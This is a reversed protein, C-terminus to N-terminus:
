TFLGGLSAVSGYILLLLFAFAFISSIILAIKAFMNRDYKKLYVISCVFTFLISIVWLIIISGRLAKMSALIISVLFLANMIWFSVRLAKGVLSKKNSNRPAMYRM